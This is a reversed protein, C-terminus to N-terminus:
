LNAAPIALVRSYRIDRYTREHIKVFKGRYIALNFPTMENVHHANLNISFAKQFQNNVVLEVAEFPGQKCAM